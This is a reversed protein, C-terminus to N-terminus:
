RLEKVQMDMIKVIDNNAVQVTPIPPSLPEQPLLQQMYLPKIVSRLNYPLPLQLAQATSACLPLNSLIRFGCPVKCRM